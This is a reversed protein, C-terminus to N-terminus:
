LEQQSPKLSVSDIIFSGRQQSDPRELKYRYKETFVKLQKEESEILRALDEVERLRRARTERNEVIQAEITRGLQSRRRISKEPVLKNPVLLALTGELVIYVRPEKLPYGWEVIKDGSEFTLLSMLQTLDQM